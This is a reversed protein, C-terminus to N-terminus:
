AKLCFLFDDSELELSEEPLHQVTPHNHLKTKQLGRLKQHSSAPLDPFEEM